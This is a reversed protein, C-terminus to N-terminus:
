VPEGNVPRQRQEGDRPAPLTALRRCIDEMGVPAYRWCDVGVDLSQSSGPLRGHSHGYLAIAGRGMGPWVRKGYHCMVVRKGDITTEALPSPREAWRLSRTAYHDHNGIVLRKHGNLRSFIEGIRAAPAERAFDGLHWVDDHPRVVANWNAILGEDMEEVSAFPRRCYRVVDAHGFHTDSTFYVAM